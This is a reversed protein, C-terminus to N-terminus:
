CQIAAGSPIELQCCALTTASRCSLRNPSGPGSAPAPQMERPTHERDCFADATGPEIHGSEAAIADEEIALADAGIDHRWVEGVIALAHKVLDVVHAIEQPGAAIHYSGQESIAPVATAESPHSHM